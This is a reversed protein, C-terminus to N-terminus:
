SNLKKEVLKRKRMDSLSGTNELEIVDEVTLDKSKVLEEAADLMESKSFFEPENSKDFSKEIAEINTISKSEVPTSALEDFAKKLTNYEDKLGSVAETVAAKILDNQQEQAKKLSEEDSAKEQSKKFEQFAEYEEKSIEVTDDSKKFPRTAPAKSSNDMRKSDNSQDMATAQKKAEDPEDEKNENETISSDYDSDRRGDMDNAPVDSIQKPRGAGRADDSQAKPAQNVAADATTKSDGAIDISKEVTDEEQSEAFFEEILADVSKNLEETNQTNEEKSM